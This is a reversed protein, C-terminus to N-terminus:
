RTRRQVATRAQVRDLGAEQRDRDGGRVPLGRSKVGTTRRARARSRRGRLAREVVEVRVDARGARGAARADEARAFTVPLEDVGPFSLTPTSTGPAPM